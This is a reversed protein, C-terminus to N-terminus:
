GDWVASIPKSGCACSLGKLVTWGLERSRRRVKTLPNWMPCPHAVFIYFPLFREPKNLEENVNM